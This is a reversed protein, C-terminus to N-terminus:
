VTENRRQIKYTNSLPLTNKNNKEIIKRIFRAKAEKDEIHDVMEILMEQDTTLM